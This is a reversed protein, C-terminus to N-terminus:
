PLMRQVSENSVLLKVTGSFYRPNFQVDSAYDKDLHLQGGNVRLEVLTNRKYRRVVRVAITINANENM